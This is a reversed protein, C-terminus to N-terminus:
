ATPTQLGLLPGLSSLDALALLDEPVDRLVLEHMATAATRMAELLLALAASNSSTVEALSLELRPQREILRKLEPWVVPVSSFDLAGTLSAKGEADESLRAAGM